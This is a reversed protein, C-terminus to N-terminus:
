VKGFIAESYNQDPRPLHWQVDSNIALAGRPFHEVFIELGTGEIKAYAGYKKGLMRDLYDAVNQGNPQELEHHRRLSWALMDAAKLPLMQTDNRFIPSAGLRERIHPAAVARIAEYYRNVEHGLQGQDDFVWDVKGSLGCREMFEAVCVMVTYFELFYPSDIGSPVRGRVIADYGSKRMVCSVRILTWKNIVDVLEAIRQDRQPETIGYSGKPSSGRRMARTMKFDPTPPAGSCTRDWEEAFGEWRAATSVYGCLMFFDGDSPARSSGSDDAFGELMVMIKRERIPSAYGCVLRRIPDSARSM